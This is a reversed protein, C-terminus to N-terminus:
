EKAIRVKINTINMMKLMKLAKVRQAPTPVEWTGILDHQSLVDSQREAQARARPLNVIKRKRDDLYEGTFGDFKVRRKSGDPMTRTLTPAYGPRAGPAADNYRKAPSDRGLNEKVWGIQPPPFPGASPRAMRLRRMASVKALAAGPAVSVAVNGAVSGTVRGIDRASANAVADRARALQIRAPTNEAAIARDITGAIGLVANRATTVPNTTLVAYAGTAVGEAVDYLGEGVGGVLDAVPNGQRGQQASVPKVGAGTAGHRPLQQNPRATQRALAADVRPKAVIRSQRANARDALQGGGEGYRRGSGAFTFRGDDPDHWPNYKLEIGGANSVPPLRGTRLWQSFVSQQKQSSTRIM